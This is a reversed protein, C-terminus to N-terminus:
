LTAYACFTAILVGIKYKAFLPLVFAKMYGSGHDIASPFRKMLAVPHIQKYKLNQKCIAIQVRAILSEPLM